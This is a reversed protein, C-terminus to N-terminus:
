PGCFIFMYVSIISLSILPASYIYKYEAHLIFHPLEGGKSNDRKRGGKSVDRKRGGKSNDRKRGGQSSDMEKTSEVMGNGVYEQIGASLLIDFNLKL